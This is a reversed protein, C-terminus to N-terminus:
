AGNILETLRGKLAEPAGFNEVPAGGPNTVGVAGLCTNHMQNLTGPANAVDVYRGTKWYGRARGAIIWPLNNYGHYGVGCQNTFVAFGQDLLPGEPTQWSALHEVFWKFKRLYLRDVLHHQQIATPIPPGSSGGSEIRHSLHHFPHPPFGPFSYVYNDARGGVKLVGVRSYGSAAAFAMLELQVTMTLDVFAGQNYKAGTAVDKVRAQAEPALAGQLKVEIDRIATFHGDLRRRDAASIDTRALTRKLEGRILDNVSLRRKAVMAMMGPDAQVLGVMREYAAQPNDDGFRADDRGRYSVAGTSKDGGVVRLVFPERGPPNKERAIRNDISEGFAFPHPSNVHRQGTLIQCDGGNHGDGNSPFPSRVGRVILIRDSLPGMEGTARKAALDAALSEPTIPGPTRPWFMEPEDPGAHAQMVGNCHIVYLAFDGVAPAAGAKRSFVDLMPLGVTAGGLGRLIARRSPQAQKM